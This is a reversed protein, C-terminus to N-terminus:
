KTVGALTVINRPPLHLAAGLADEASEKVGEGLTPHAFVMEALDGATGGSEIVAVAAHIIETANHGIIHVGLLADTERHRITKVFGEEHCAAMAKGLHGLPFLGVSIPLGAERARRETMGVGAVEPYTYEAWPIAKEFVHDAGLANEVATVAQASAAHALLTRGNADGVCYVGEATTEMRDNVPIFGREGPALGVAELGIDQTAPTRGIAKLVRDAEIVTGDSLEARVAQEALEMSAVKSDLHLTIGRKSFIEALADALDADMEPMLRPMMEVITVEVGFSRVMCAFECGIVGGGVILLREPLDDWHLAEDSTCVKSRDVPWGPIVAPVSGVALIIKEAALETVSGDDATVSLKGPGALRGFGQYSDVKRAKFLGKIGARLKALVKDKRKQVASWDFDVSGDISIGLDGAHSINHLMEGTALLAKSPICGWNLCTGGFFPHREIVATRVGLQAAKLAAVYGGPGSGIVAIDYSETM